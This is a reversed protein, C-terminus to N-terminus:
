ENVKSQDTKASTNTKLTNNNTRIPDNTGNATNNTSNSPRSTGNINTTNGANTDLVSFQNHFREHQRQRSNSRNPSAGNQVPCFGDNIIGSTYDMENITNEFNHETISQQEEEDTMKNSDDSLLDQTGVSNTYGYNGDAGSLVTSEDDQHNMEVDATHHM